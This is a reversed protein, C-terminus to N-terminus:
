LTFKGITQPGMKLRFWMDKRVGQSCGWAKREPKTDHSKCKSKM